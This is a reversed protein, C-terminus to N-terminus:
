EPDRFMKTRAIDLVGAAYYEAEGNKAARCGIPIRPADEIHADPLLPCTM